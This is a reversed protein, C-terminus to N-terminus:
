RRRCWSPSRARSTPAPVRAARRGGPRRELRRLDAAPHAGGVARDFAHLDDVAVHSSVTIPSTSGRRGRRSRGRRRPRRARRRRCGRGSRGSRARSTPAARSSRRPSRRRGRASSTKRECRSTRSSCNAFADIAVPQAIRQLSRPTSGVSIECTSSPPENPEYRVAALATFIPSTGLSGSGRM